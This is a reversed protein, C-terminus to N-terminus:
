THCYQLQVAGKIKKSSALWDQVLCEDPDLHRPPFSGIVGRAIDMAGFINRYWVM